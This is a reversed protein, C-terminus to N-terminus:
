ILSEAGESYKNETTSAGAASEYPPPNKFPGINFKNNMDVETKVLLAELASTRSGKDCNKVWCRSDGVHSTCAPGSAGM